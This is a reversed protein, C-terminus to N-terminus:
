LVYSCLSVFLCVHSSERRKVARGSLVGVASHRRCIAIIVILLIAIIVIVLIAIIGILLIVIIAVILLIAIILVGVARAEPLHRVQLAGVM